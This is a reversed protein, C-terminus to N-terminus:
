STLNIIIIKTNIIKLSLYEKLSNIFHCNYKHYKTINNGKNITKKILTKASNFRLGMSKMSPSDSNTDPNLISYKLPPNAKIKIASYPIIM